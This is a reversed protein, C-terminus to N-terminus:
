RGAPASGSWPQTIITVDTRNGNEDYLTKQETETYVEDQVTAGPTGYATERVDLTIMDPNTWTKM